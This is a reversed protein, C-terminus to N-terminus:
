FPLIITQDAELEGTEENLVMGCKKQAPDSWNGPKVSEIFNILSEVIKLFSFGILAFLGAIILVIILYNM